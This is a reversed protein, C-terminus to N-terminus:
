RVAAQRIGEAYPTAPFFQREFKRSDFLYDSDSQYLMERSERIIPNFLGGMWIMLKSLTFYNPAVGYAQAAREIFERGTLPDPDTPLHWTQGYAAPTNGLVATARAADTTLTMSHKVRDNVLWNATKGDKLKGFVLADVFSNTVNPGYFDASRAILATLRQAQMADLLMQAIQMRVEGKRSIPRFPTEETMWGNVRGYMYVNDFFVLKAGHRECSVIANQMVKPWNEQWIKTNYPLGVVLYVIASGAVARDTQDANTLDAAHLEDNFNVAKPSRSVLRIQDTYQTLQRALENAIVGGAGLITQRNM